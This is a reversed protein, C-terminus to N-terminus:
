NSSSLKFEFSSSGGNIRLTAIVTSHDKIRWEELTKTDDSLCKGSFTLRDITQGFLEKAGDKLDKVM